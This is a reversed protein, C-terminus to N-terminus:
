PTSTPTAKANDFLLGVNGGINTAITSSPIFIGGYGFTAWAGGNAGLIGHIGNSPMAGGQSGLNTGANAPPIIGSLWGGRLCLVLFL